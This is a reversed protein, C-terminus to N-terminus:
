LVERAVATEPKEEPKERTFGIDRHYISKLGLSTAPYRDDFNAGGRILVGYSSM